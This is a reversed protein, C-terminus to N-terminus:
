GGAQLTPSWTGPRLPDRVGDAMIARSIDVDVQYVVSGAASLVRQGEAFAERRYFLIRQGLGDEVRRWAAIRAPRLLDVRHSAVWRDSTWLAVAYQSAAAFQEAAQLCAVGLDRFAYEDEADGVAQFAMLCVESAEIIRDAYNRGHVLSALWADMENVAPELAAYAAARDEDAEAADAAAQCVAIAERIEAAEDATVLDALHTASLLLRDIRARHVAPEPVRTRMRHRIGEEIQERTM